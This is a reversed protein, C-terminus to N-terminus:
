GIKGKVPGKRIKSVVKADFLAYQKKIECAIYGHKEQYDIGHRRFLLLLTGVYWPLAGFIFDLIFTVRMTSELRIKATVELRKLDLGFDFEFKM